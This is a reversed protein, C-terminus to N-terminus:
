SCGCSAMSVGQKFCRGCVHMYKCANVTCGQNNFAFCVPKGEPTKNRCGNKGGKGTGKEAKNKAKRSQKGKGKGKDVGDAPKPKTFQPDWVGPPYTLSGQGLSSNKGKVFEMALPTSFHREKVLPDEWAMRLAAVFTMGKRVHLVARVRVAHEYAILISWSPSSVAANGGDIALMGLVYEGLLYSAYEQFLQPTMGKLYGRNSQHNGLFIWAVGLLALRKRLAETDAPLSVKAGVKVAKLEGGASWVARLSDPDDDERSLVETLQEARLEGREIEDLKKELYSRGPVERDGLDWYRL